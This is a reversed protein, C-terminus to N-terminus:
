ERVWEAGVKDMASTESAIVYGDTTSGISLPRIGNEDRMGIIKNSEVFGMSFAGKFKPAEEILAAIVDGSEQRAQNISMAM